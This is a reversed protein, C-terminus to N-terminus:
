LQIENVVKKKDTDLLLVIDRKRTSNLSQGKRHFGAFILQKVGSYIPDTFTVIFEKTENPEFRVCPEDYGCKGDSLSYINEGKTDTFDISNDIDCQCDRDYTTSASFYTRDLTGVYYYTPVPAMMVKDYPNTMKYRIKLIYGDVKEKSSYQDDQHTFADKKIETEIGSIEIQFVYDSNLLPYSFKSYDTPITNQSTTDQAVINEQIITTDIAQKSTSNNSCSFIIFNFFLAAIQRLTKQM